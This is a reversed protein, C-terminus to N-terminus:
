MDMRAMPLAILGTAQLCGQKAKSGAERLMDDADGLVTCPERFPFPDRRRLKTRDPVSDVDRTEAVPSRLLCARRDHDGAQARLLIDFGQETGRRDGHALVGAEPQLNGSVPG